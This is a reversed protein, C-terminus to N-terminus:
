PTATSESLVDRLAAMLDAQECPKRLVKHGERLLGFTLADRECPTEFVLHRGDRDEDRPSVLESPMMHWGASHEDCHSAAELRSCWLKKIPTLTRAAAIPLNMTSIM